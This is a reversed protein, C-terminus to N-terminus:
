KNRTTGFIIGGFVIAALLYVSAKIGLVPVAFGTIFIFGFASGALDASYIAPTKVIGDAKGTLESFIYGTFFAPIFGSFMIIITALISSKLDLLNNYLMAFVIYFLILFIVKNRISFTYPLSINIGSGVALGAMLAAIILGTLQYMNGSTLQVTLLIVIEFGALASAAFYMLLNKRKIAAAPLVFTIFMLIIAPLKEDLNKSFLYAQSHFSAFPFALKNQKIKKDILGTVELSKINIREDDLFDSNVYINRINKTTALQCFNLSLQQDSAIFYLKNGVVPKVNKFSAELSNNISSYLKISEKNLYIDGPGPSCLFIGGPNLKEKLNYFFESTYYRNLLLTTPPPILMIIVDYSETSRRIYRFADGNVITIQGSSKEVLSTEYAALFPDREVYTIHKVPYKLIEPLHSSLSGSILLVNGPSKSQLMAYHIDEERETADNNYVLLRHNYYLSEEGRYKGKTINGYPTDHTETVKVSPMLIQRFFIDPNLLIILLCFLLFVYRSVRASAPQKIYTIFVYAFSLVIFLMFLKYTGVLGATLVSVIIGSVIGGTTEISFSKGPVFNNEASAITILKIFTFGSVM